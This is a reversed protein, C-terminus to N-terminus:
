ATTTCVTGSMMAGVEGMFTGSDFGSPYDTAEKTGIYKVQGKIIVCAIKPEEGM